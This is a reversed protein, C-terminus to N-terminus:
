RHQKLPTEPELLKLVGDVGYRSTLAAVITVADQKGRREAEM